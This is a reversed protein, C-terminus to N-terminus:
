SWLHDLVVERQEWSQLPDSLLWFFSSEQRVEEAYSEDLLCGLRRMSVEHEVVWISVAM